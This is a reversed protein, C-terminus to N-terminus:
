EEEEAGLIEIGLHKMRLDFREMVEEFPIGPRAVLSTEEACCMNNADPRKTNFCFLLGSSLTRLSQASLPVSLDDGPAEDMPCV